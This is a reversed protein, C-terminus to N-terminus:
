ATITGTATTFRSETWRGYTFPYTAMIWVRSAWGCALSMVVSTWFAARQSQIQVATCRRSYTSVGWPFRGVRLDVRSEQSGQKSGQRARFSRQTELIRSM